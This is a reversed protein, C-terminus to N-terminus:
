PASPISNTQAHAPLTGSPEAKQQLVDIVRKGSLRFIKATRTLFDTAQKPDNTGFSLTAGFQGSRSVEVGQFIVADGLVIVPMWGEKPSEELDVQITYAGTSSGASDFLTARKAKPTKLQHLPVRMVLESGEVSTKPAEAWDALYLGDEAQAIMAAFMLIAFARIM